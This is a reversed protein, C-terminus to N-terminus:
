SHPNKIVHKRLELEALITKYAEEGINHYVIAYDYLRIGNIESAIFREDGLEFANAGNPPCHYPEERISKENYMVRILKPKGVQKAIVSMSVNNDKLEKVFLHDKEDRCLEVLTKVPMNETM